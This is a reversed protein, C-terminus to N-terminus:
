QQKIRFIENNQLKMMFVTNKIDLILLKSNLSNAAKRYFSSNQWQCVLQFKWCVQLNMRYYRDNIKFRNQWVFIKVFLWVIIIWRENFFSWILYNIFEIEHIEKIHYDVSSCFFKLSLMFNMLSFSLIWNHSCIKDYFIMIVLIM